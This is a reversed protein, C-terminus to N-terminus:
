NLLEDEIPLGALKGLIIIVIAYILFFLWISLWDSQTWETSM